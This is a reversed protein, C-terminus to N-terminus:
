GETSAPGLGAWRNYREAWRRAYAAAESATKFRARSLHPEIGELTIVARYLKEWKRNMIRIYGAEHAAM